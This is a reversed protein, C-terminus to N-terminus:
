SEVRNTESEVKLVSAGLFSFFAYLVVWGYSPWLKVWNGQERKGTSNMQLKYIKNGHVNQNIKISYAQKLIM